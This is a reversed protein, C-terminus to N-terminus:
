MNNLLINMQPKDVPNKLDAPTLLFMYTKNWWAGGAWYTWGAWVDANSTMYSMMASGENMCAANTAWGAEGLFIRYGNTRAWLTAANLASAGLGPHCVDKTGTSYRDLYQHMEFAFNNGPDVFNVWAAANGSSVWSHAGSWATGPILILQKAGAARIAQVAPVAVNKWEVATQINPENMLGFIVTPQDKFAVAMRHWFDAFTSAPLGGAVGIVRSTGTTSDYQRGYDHPDLIVSIGKSAGYNVVKKLAAVETDFLPANLVPQLRRGSFPVRIVTMGKSAYYDVEANSPYVYDYNMRAAAKGGNYEGGSINVGKLKNVGPQILTSSALYVPLLSTSAPLATSTGHAIDVSQQPMITVAVNEGANAVAADALGPVDAADATEAAAPLVIDASREFPAMSPAAEDKASVVPASDADLTASAVVESQAQQISTAAAGNSASGGGGCATLLVAAAAMAIHTPSPRYNELSFM